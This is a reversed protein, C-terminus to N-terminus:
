VRDFVYSYLLVSVLALRYKVLGLKVALSKPLKKLKVGKFWARVDDRRMYAKAAKARAFLGYPSGPLCLNRAATVAM